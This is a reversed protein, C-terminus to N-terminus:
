YSRVFLSAGVVLLILFFLLLSVSNVIWRRRIGRIKLASTLKEILLPRDPKMVRAGDRRPLRFGEPKPPRFRPLGSGEALRTGKRNWPLPLGSLWASLRNLIGM